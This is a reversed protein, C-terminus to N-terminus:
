KPLGQMTWCNYWNAWGGASIVKDAIEYQIEKSKLLDLYPTSTSLGYKQYYGKFSPLQWQLWGYSYLGNTDLTIRWLDGSECMALKQLEKYHKLTATWNKPPLPATVVQANTVSGLGILVITSIAIILKKTWAMLQRGLEPQRDM